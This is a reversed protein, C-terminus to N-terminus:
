NEREIQISYIQKFGLTVQGVRILQSITDVSNVRGRVQIYKKSDEGFYTLEVFDNNRLDLLAKNLNSIADETLERRYQTSQEKEAIAEKLGKLVDYMMFQKARMRVPMPTRISTKVAM